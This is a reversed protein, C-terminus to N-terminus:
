FDGWPLGTDMVLSLVICISPSSIDELWIFFLHISVIFALNSSSRFIVFEFYSFFDMGILSTWFVYFFVRLSSPCSGCFQTVSPPTKTPISRLSSSLLPQSLSDIGPRPAQFNESDWVRHMFANGRPSQYGM